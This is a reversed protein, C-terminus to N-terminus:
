LMPKLFRTKEHYIENAGVTDGNLILPNVFKGQAVKVSNKGGEYMVSFLTSRSPGSDSYGIDNGMILVINPKNTGAALNRTVM